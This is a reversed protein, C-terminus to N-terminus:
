SNLKNKTAEIPSTCCIKFLLLMQNPREIEIILTNTAIRKQKILKIIVIM